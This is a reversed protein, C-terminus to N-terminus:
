KVLLVIDKGGGVDVSDIPVIEEKGALREITKKVEEDMTRQTADSTYFIPSTQITVVSILIKTGDKEIQYLNTSCIYNSCVITDTEFGTIGQVDYYNKVDADVEVTLVEKVVVAGVVGILFLAIFISWVIRKNRMNTRSHAM